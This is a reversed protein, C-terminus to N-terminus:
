HLEQHQGACCLVFERYVQHYPELEWGLGWTEIGVNTTVM